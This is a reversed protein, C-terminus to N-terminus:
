AAAAALGAQHDLGSPTPRGADWAVVVGVSFRVEVPRTSRATAESAITRMTISM